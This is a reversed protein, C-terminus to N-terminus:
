SEIEIGEPRLLASIPASIGLVYTGALFITKRLIAEDSASLLPAVETKM